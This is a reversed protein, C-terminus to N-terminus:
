AQARLSSLFMSGRSYLSYYFSCKRHGCEPCTFKKRVPGMSHQATSAAGVPFDMPFALPPDQSAISLSHPSIGVSVSPRYPGDDVQAKVVQVPDFMAPSFELTGFSDFFESPDTFVAPDAFASTQKPDVGISESGFNARRLAADFPSRYNSTSHSMFSYESNASDDTLGMSYMSASSSVLSSPTSANSDRYPPPPGDLPAPFHVDEDVNDLELGEDVEAEFSEPSTPEFFPLDANPDVPMGTESLLSWWSEESM